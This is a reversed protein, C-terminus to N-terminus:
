GFGSFNSDEAPLRLETGPNALQSSFRAERVVLRTVIAFLLRTSLGCMLVGVVSEVPGLIRWMQPLVVDSSGVTTYSATSFYFASEWQSFCFWRYFSAWLLIQLVHLAIIATTFRMMLVASRLPGLKHPDPGLSIRAGGILAAIGGCQLWLSLAILAVATSTQHVFTMPESRYLFAQHLLLAM